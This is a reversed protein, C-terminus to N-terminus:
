GPGAAPSRGRGVGGGARTHAPAEQLSQNPHGNAAQLCKARACGSTSIWRGPLVSLVGGEVNAADAEWHPPPQHPTSHTLGLSPCHTDCGGPPCPGTCLLCVRARTGWGPRRGEGVWRGGGVWPSMRGAERKRCCTHKNADLVFLLLVFVSPPGAGPGLQGRTALARSACHRRKAQVCHAAPRAASPPSRPVVQHSRLVQAELPSDPGASAGKHPHPGPRAGSGPAQPSPLAPVQAPRNGERWPVSPLSEWPSEVRRGGLRAM